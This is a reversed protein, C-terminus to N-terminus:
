VGMMNAMAINLSNIQTKLSSIEEEATLQRDVYEYWQEKTEPNIYHVAIKGIKEEPQLLVNDVLINSDIVEQTVGQQIDYPMMHIGRVLQKDGLKSEVYILKQM